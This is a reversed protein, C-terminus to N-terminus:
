DMLVIKKYADSLNETSTENFLAEKTGSFVNTGKDLIYFYDCLIQAEELNHTSLILIKHKALEKIKERFTLNQVTDLGSSFEDLILVDSNKCLGKALNVRQRYGKSLSSIKEDLVDNLSLFDCTKNVAEAVKNKEVFSSAYFYLEETVTFNKTYDLTEPVYSCVSRIANLDSKGCVSLDGEDCYITGSLIKFLTSKGAGNQGIVATVTGEKAYFDFDHLAYKKSNSYAKSIKEAKIEISM